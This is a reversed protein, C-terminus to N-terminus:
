KKKNRNEIIKKIEKKKKETLKKELENYKKEIKAITEEYKRAAEEKKEKEIRHSEEIVGIEKEYDEKIRDTIDSYNFSRRTLLWVVIPIAM